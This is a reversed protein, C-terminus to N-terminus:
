HMYKTDAKGINRSDKGKGHAKSKQRTTTRSGYENSSLDVSGDVIVPRRIQDLSRTTPSTATKSKDIQPKDITSAQTDKRVRIQRGLFQTGDFMEIALTAHNKYRFTIVASWQKSDSQKKIVCREIEGAQGFHAELENQKAEYKLNQVFIGRGVTTVTGQSVNVLTGDPNMHYVKDPVSYSLSLEVPNMSPDFMPMMPSPSYGTSIMPKSASWLPSRYNLNPEWEQGDQGPQYLRFAQWAQDRLQQETALPHTSNGFSTRSMSSMYSLGANHSQINYMSASPPLYGQASLASTYQPIPSNQLSNGTASPAYGRSLNTQENMLIPQVIPDMPDRTYSLPALVPAIDVNPIPSISELQRPSPYLTANDTYLLETQGGGCKFLAATLTAGHWKNGVICDTSYQSFHNIHLFIAAKSYAKTADAEQRISCFATKCDRVVNVNAPEGTIIKRVLDKVPRWGHIPPLADPM